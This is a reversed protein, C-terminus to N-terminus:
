ATERNTGKKLKDHSAGTLKERRRGAERRKWNEGNPKIGINRTHSKETRSVAPIISFLFVGLFLKWHLLYRVIISKLGITENDKVEMM